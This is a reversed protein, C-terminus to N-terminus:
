LENQSAQLNISNDNLLAITRTKGDVSVKDIVESRTHEAPRLQNHIHYELVKDGMHMM